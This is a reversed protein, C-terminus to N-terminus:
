QDAVHPSEAFDYSGPGVEIPANPAEAHLDPRYLAEVRTPPLAFTGVTNLRVTYRLSVRGAPLYDYYARYASATREIFAPPYDDAYEGQPVARVDRGLGSGLIVAGAPIPDNLVVWSAGERAHIDVEVRYIDGRSWGEEAHRQVPVVRREVRYGFNQLAAEPMRAQARVSVWATGTGEHQLRVGGEGLPWGLQLAAQRTEGSLMVRESAGQPIIHATIAGHAPTGEFKASFRQLALQALLNETTIAWVGGSQAEILGRAMRPLDAQWEPREMVTLMLRALSTVRTAMLGPEANLPTAAFSLAMGSVSMRASLISRAQKLAADVKKGAPMRTLISVWNVLTPTSWQAPAVEVSSLLAPTVRGHRALAEMAMIRRAQLGAENRAGRQIRGEAFAQLGNLMRELLEDPVTAAVGAQQADDLASVVYATLVESGPGTGPFYRLLGDDDGHTAMRALVSDWRKIDALALAQSATQELCTYPYQQWWDRVSELSGILSAGVDMALGGLVAGSADRQADAPPALPWEVTSGEPLELLAAQVTTAARAPLVQQSVVISDSIVGDTAKFRWQVAAGDNPWRLQLARVPWSLTAAAGGALSLTRSDLRQEEGNVIQHAHVQLTRAQPTTNRVTVMAQYTDGERVVTPLGPALQLDQRTVIQASATGFYGAAYDAIAVLTYRSLSDNMTFRIQAEGNADLRVMPQWTLLTDFLQRTPLLGGGGGAAVAKRGYHRRGVVEMQSTATRVALSRRPHMAEYLQWSDNPALELLADDVAAFAVTGHAAPRGDPLSVKVNVVAEQRVQLVDHQPTVTVQLRDAEGGVRIETLGFRFAPKALDIRTTVLRDEPNEGYALLWAAPDRWGWERFSRWSLPYLRGRLVLVSVYANPGWSAEVPIRIVPNTGQLKVQRFWLVGEREVSVLAVAERFPMRVQFEATEGAAWERKAPVLDIRDDDHGGFWLEDDGSVWVTSYARSERGEGDRAVAVLDYAGARDFPASCPLTGDETTVGECVTVAPGREVHTDYRYFGGVMRKRVTYMRREMALLQMAVGQRPRAATDLAILGVPIDRNVQGWGEVKLGAQVASPWVDVSGSLTQIEGSPDAFSAELRLRQPRDASPLDNLDISAAGQADLVIERGDLFVHRRPADDQGADGSPPTDGDFGRPPANFIYDEYTDFRLVRDEALASLSVRQGAAPGGSLWALQIGVRLSDPAVVRDPREAGSVSVSGTLIPLRFEEVRFSSSGYWGQDSDTLRVSYTGLLASHPIEFESVAVLGGDPTEHWVLPLEHRQESGEHQILLRDPRRQQPSRLGERIEERVYHKMSVREGARFLSRDFVTHTLLEPEPGTATPVNFRWTEIGRDWDSLVFAYDAAGRALPHDAPIRASVFLGNLGTAPCYDPGSVAQTHHWVGTDDTRGQALVRGNCDRVAIEADGVSRAADLTTVWVLLDDRGQKLHVALNTLLVGTRVYMPRAEELLSAGLSPSELELIHFGPQEIPVGVVEFPEQGPAREPLRLHRAEAEKKLLSVGRVDIRPVDSGYDDRPARDALIDELQAASWMGSDLRQLRAYWRLVDTDDISHLAAVKAAPRQVVRLTADPEIHRLTVPVAAGQERETEPTAYAFREIVGFTGSAFKALPPYDAFQVNLPFRGANALARGADDNLGAPLELVLTSRPPFPGPFSVYSVPGGDTDFRAPFSRTGTGLWLGNLAEPAVPATFTLTIPALPMCPAGARERTCSLKALFPPRVTYELVHAQATGPLSDPQGEARLNPGVELRVASEPPLARACQLLAVSAPDAPPAMYSAELLATVHEASVARVPIREGVGEVVCHSKGAVAEADVPANFRLIFVQEEDIAMGPYPRFESVKPAGTNFSYLTDNPLLEGKLGRFDPNHTATCQVGAPVTASFTYVWRRDDLWRGRGDPALGECELLVPPTANPDGFAAAAEAFSLQVSEVVGADGQPTFSDITLHLPTASSGSEGPPYQTPSAPSPLVPPPASAASSPSSSAGNTPLPVLLSGGVLLACLLTSAGQAMSRSIHQVAGYAGSMRQTVPAVTRRM